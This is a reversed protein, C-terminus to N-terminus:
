GTEYGTHKVPDNLGNVNLTVISLCLILTITNGTCLLKQLNNRQAEDESLTGRLIEKLAPKTTVYEKWKQTDQFSMIEGKIRFSLRALYLIRPQM